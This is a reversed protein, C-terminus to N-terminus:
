GNANQGMAFVRGSGSLMLTHDIGCAVSVFRDAVRNVIIPIFEDNYTGHGLQGFKNSGFTFVRGSSDVMASHDSGCDIVMINAERVRTPRACALDTVRMDVTSGVGCQGNKNSGWAYVDGQRTLLLCHNSGCEVTYPDMELFDEV